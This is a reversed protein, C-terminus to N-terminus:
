VAQVSAVKRWYFSGSTLYCFCEAPLGERVWCVWFAERNRTNASLTSMNTLPRGMSLVNVNM